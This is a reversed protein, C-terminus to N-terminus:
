LEFRNVRMAFLSMIGRLLIKLKRLNASVIWAWTTASLLKLFTAKHFGILRKWLVHGFLVLANAARIRHSKEQRRPRIELADRFQGQYFRNLGSSIETFSRGTM